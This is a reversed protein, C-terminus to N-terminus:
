GSGAPLLCVPCGLPVHAAAYTPPVPVPLPPLFPPMKLSGEWARTHSIDRTRKWRSVQQQLTLASSRTAM